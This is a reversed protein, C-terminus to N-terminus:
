PTVLLPLLMAFCALAGPTLPLMPVECCAGALAADVAFSCNHSAAEGGEPQCGGGGGYMRYVDSLKMYDQAGTTSSTLRSLFGLLLDVLELTVTSVFCQQTKWRVAM